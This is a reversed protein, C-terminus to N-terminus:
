ILDIDTVKVIIDEGNDEVIDFIFNYGNDKNDEGYPTYCWSNVTKKLLDKVDMSHNNCYEYIGEQADLLSVIDADMKELNVIKELYEERLEKLKLMNNEEKNNKIIIEKGTFELELMRTEEGLGMERIWSTPLTARFTTGGSGTKRRNVLLKANRVEM